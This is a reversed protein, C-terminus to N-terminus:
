TATGDRHVAIKLSSFTVAQGDAISLNDLEVPAGSGTLGVNGIEVVAGTSDELRYWGANAAGGPIGTEATANIASASTAEANAGVSAAAQFSPDNLAANVLLNDTM